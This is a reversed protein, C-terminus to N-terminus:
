IVLMLGVLLKVKKGAYSKKTTIRIRNNKITASWIYYTGSKKTKTAAKKATASSYFYGNKLTVKDGAKFTAKKM